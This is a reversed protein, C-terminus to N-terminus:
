CSIFHSLGGVFDCVCLLRLSQDIFIGSLVNVPECVKNITVNCLVEMVYLYFERPHSFRFALILEKM